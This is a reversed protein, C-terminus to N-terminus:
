AATGMKMWTDGCPRDLVGAFPNVMFRRAMRRSDVPVARNTPIATGAMACPIGTGIARGAAKVAEVETVEAALRARVASASTAERPALLPATITGTAFVSAGM